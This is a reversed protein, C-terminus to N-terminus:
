AMLGDPGNSAPGNSSHLMWAPRYRGELAIPKGGLPIRKLILREPIYTWVDGQYSVLHRNLLDSNPYHVFQVQEPKGPAVVDLAEMIQGVTCDTHNDSGPLIFVKANPIDLQTGIAQFHQILDQKSTVHSIHSLYHCPKSSNIIVLGACQHVGSTSLALNLNNSLEYQPYSLVQLGDQIQNRDLAKLEQSNIGQPYSGSSNKILPYPTLSRGSFLVSLIPQPHFITKCGSRIRVPLYM